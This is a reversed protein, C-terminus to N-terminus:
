VEEDSPQEPVSTGTAAEVVVICATATVSLRGTGVPQVTLARTVSVMDPDSNFM